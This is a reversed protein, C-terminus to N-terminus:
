NPTKLTLYFIRPSSPMDRPQITLLCTLKRFVFVSSGRFMPRRALCYLLDSCLARSLKKAERFYSCNPDYNELPAYIFSSKREHRSITHYKFLLNSFAKCFRRSSVSYLTQLKTVDLACFRNLYCTAVSSHIM